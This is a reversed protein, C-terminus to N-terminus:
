QNNKSSKDLFLPFTESIDDIRIRALSSQPSNPFLRILERYWQEASDYQNCSEYCLGLMLYFSPLSPHNPYLAIIQRYRRLAKDESSLEVLCLAVMEHYEKGPSFDPKQQYIEQLIHLAKEYEDLAMHCKAAKIMASSIQSHQPCKEIFSEFYQCAKQINSKLLSLEGLYYLSIRGMRTESYEETFSLLLREMQDLNSMLRFVQSIVRESEPHDPHDTLWATYLEMASASNGRKLLDDALELSSDNEGSSLGCTLCFLFAAALYVCPSINSLPGFFIKM